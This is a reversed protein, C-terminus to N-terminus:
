CCVCLFFFFGQDAWTGLVTDRVSMFGISNVGGEVAAYWGIPALSEAEMEQGAAQFAARPVDLTSFDFQPRPPALAAMLVYAETKHEAPVGDVGLVENLLRQKAEDIQGCSAEALALNVSADVADALFEGAGGALATARDDNFAAMAEQLLPRLDEVATPSEGLSCVAARVDSFSTRIRRLALRWFAFAVAWSFWAVSVLTM